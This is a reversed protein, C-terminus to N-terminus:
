NAIVKNENADKENACLLEFYGFNDSKNDVFINGIFNRMQWKFKNSIFKGRENTYNDLNKLLYTLEYNKFEAEIAFLIKDILFFRKVPNGGVDNELANLTQYLIFFFTTLTKENDTM